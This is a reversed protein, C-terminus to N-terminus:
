LSQFHRRKREHAVKELDRSANQLYNTPLVYQKHPTLRISAVRQASPEWRRYQHALLQCLRLPELPPIHHVELTWGLRYGLTDAARSLSIMYKFAFLKELNEQAGRASCIESVWNVGRTLIGRWLHSLWTMGDPLTYESCIASPTLRAGAAGSGGTHSPASTGSSGYAGIKKSLM